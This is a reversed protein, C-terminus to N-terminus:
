GYVIEGFCCFQLFADDTDADENGSKADNWHHSKELLALGRKIADLDLVVSDDDDDMSVLVAGGTTPLLQCWHWYESGPQAKGGESYDAATFGAPYAHPSVDSYWYNSGGEFAGCLLGRITEMDLSLPTTTTSM